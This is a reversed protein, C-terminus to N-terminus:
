VGAAITRVKIAETPCVAACQACEDECRQPEIRPMGLVGEQGNEQGRKPWATTAKGKRLGFLTWLPM